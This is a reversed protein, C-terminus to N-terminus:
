GTPVVEVADWNPIRRQVTFMSVRSSIEPRAESPAAGHSEFGLLTGDVIAACGPLHM